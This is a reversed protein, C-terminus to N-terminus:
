FLRRWRSARVNHRERQVNHLVACVKAAELDFVLASTSPLGIVPSAKAQHLLVLVLIVSMFIPKDDAERV